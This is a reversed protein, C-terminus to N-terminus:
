CDVKRAVLVLSGGVPLSVGNAILWCELKMVAGLLKNALWGIKFGSDMKDDAQSSRQALRSLLMFPLLLSVFSSAYEVRFGAQSVKEKVEARSYRRKHHAYDDTKSWLWHHQPVTLILVGDALCAQYIENLAAQDDDIHELVDFAGILDFENRFPIYRADMQFFIASPVRQKAFCLGETYIDSGSLQAAPFTRCTSALVFGTGCGIELINQAGPSHHLMLSRLIKNRALFWFHTPEIAAFREFNDPDFGNNQEALAPAFALFGDREAPVNGCTPCEWEIDSFSQHCALCFKM